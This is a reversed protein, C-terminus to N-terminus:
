DCQELADMIRSSANGDNFQIFKEKYRAIEEKPIAKYEIISKLLAQRDEVIPYSFEECYDIYLGRSLQYEKYDPVYFITATNLLMFDYFVSSYDTILFDAIGILSDTPMDCNNYEKLSLLHPHLKVILFYDDPLSNKIYEIDDVFEFSGNIDSGRFSPAWLVIKKGKAEPYSAYFNEKCSELYKKDFLLDTRSNGLLKVKDLSLRWNSIVVKQVAISSVPVLDFNKTPKVFRLGGLDDLADYGYKKQLGSAHWLQIVKTKERKNCSSVPLYYNYVFVYKARAYLKMFAISTKLKEWASLKSFDHFFLVTRYGRKEVESYMSISNYTLQEDRSDAFVVLDPEIEQYCYYKYAIPLVVHQLISKQLERLFFKM